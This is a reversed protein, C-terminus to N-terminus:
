RVRTLQLTVPQPSGALRGTLRLRDADLAYTGAFLRGNKRLWRNWIQVTRQEPDVEFHHVVTSDAYRFVSQYARNREFYIRSPASRGQFGQAAAVDWTGDLPTPRRNNYNAVWYTFGAAFALMGARVAWAAVARRSARAPEPSATADWFLAVLPARYRLLISLLGWWLLVAVLLAGSDIGYFVDVLVINSVVGFLICAGLLVTRRFTLLLGGGIQVLAILNGYVPSYGFYYWTLWFGSVQRMPKDLESELITFQSGMLKAFGYCILVFAIGYRLSAPPPEAPAHPAPTNM